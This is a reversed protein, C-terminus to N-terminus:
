KLVLGLLFQMKTNIEIEMSTHNVNFYGVITRNNYVNYTPFQFHYLLLRLYTTFQFLSM